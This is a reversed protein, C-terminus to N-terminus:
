FANPRRVRLHPTPSLKIEEYRFEAPLELNPVNALSLLQEILADLERMPVRLSGGQGLFSVWAFVGPSILGGARLNPPIVVGEAILPIDTIDLEEEANRLVARLEYEDKSNTQRVQLSLEWRADDDWEVAATGVGENTRLFCRGTACM